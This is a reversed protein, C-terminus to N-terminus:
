QTPIDQIQNLFKKWEELLTNQKNICSKISGIVTKYKEKKIKKQQNYELVVFGAKKNINELSNKQVTQYDKPKKTFIGAYRQKYELLTELDNQVESSVKTLNELKSIANKTNQPNKYFAITEEISNMAKELLEENEKIKTHNDNIRKRMNDELDDKELKVGLAIQQAVSDKYSKISKETHIIDNNLRVIENKIIRNKDTIFTKLNEETPIVKISIDGYKEWLSECIDAGGKLDLYKNKLEIYKEFYM